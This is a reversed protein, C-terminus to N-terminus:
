PSRRQRYAPVYGRQYQDPPRGRTPRDPGQGRSYQRLSRDFDRHCQHGAARWGRLFYLRGPRHGACRRQCRLRRPLQLAPKSQRKGGCLPHDRHIAPLALDAAPTLSLTIRNTQGPGLSPLNTGSASALWPAQPLLMQIPGSAVGGSNVLDFTAFTEEGRLMTDVLSNPNATLVATQPAITVTLPYYAVAGQASTLHLRAQIHVPSSVNAALLTYSLPIAGNAPISSGLSLQATLYSSAGEVVANVGSLPLDGLNQVMVQNTVETNPYLSQVLGGNAFRAGYLAFGSQFTDTAVSPHDACLEYSGAETGLPVFVYSFNGNPDTTVNFVRRTGKVLVRISVPVFPVAQGPNQVSYAYGHMPVPTGSPASAIDATVFARYDPQVDIYSASILNNNQYSIEALSQDPNVNVILYYQGPTPPLFLPVSNTYAQGVAVSNTMHVRGVYHPNAGSPSTSYYIYDTWSNTAAWIGDNEVSYSLNTIASALAASPVTIGTVRLDPLNVDSVNIAAVGMAFGTASATITARRPGTPVGPNVGTVTFSASSQNAPITTSPPVTATGTDSSALTVVLNTTPTFNCRVTASSSGTESITGTSLSVSLALGNDDIVVLSDSVGTSPIATGLVADAFFASLHATVSNHALHDNVVNIPFTASAQGAPVTVKPPVTVLASDSKLVITSPLPLPSKYIVTGQSAPNAASETIFSDALSLALPPLDDDTVTIAGPVGAFGSAVPLVTVLADASPLANSVVAANFSASWAGAPITVAAPVTLRSNDSSVLSVTLPSNTATNRSVTGAIPQTYTEGVSGLSLGVTLTAINNDLVTLLNTAAPYGTATASIAVQRTGRVLSSPVANVPFTTASHGSPITVSAPVTASSSDSSNLLVVLSSSTDGGRTLTGVAAPNAANQVFSVPSIALTLTAAVAVPQAAVSTNNTKDLEFLTNGADAKVVLWKNGQGFMPLTVTQTNTVTQGAALGNIVTFTGLLQESALTLDDALFIQDTWTNTAPGNGLNSETWTVQIAQGGTASAPGSVNTVMLDPYPALSSSAAVSSSNNNEGTGGANYEFINNYYDATVTIQLNGTGATGEPLAFSFQRAPAQGAGIPSLAVNEAIASNLLTQGSTQNVVLVRDYFNASVSANGTNADNWVLGVRTGSHLQSNTVALGTVQLDPYAAQTSTFALTTSNNSYPNPSGNAEYQSQYANATIRVGMAGAGSPGNPLQVQLSRTRSDGPAINGSTSADYYAASSFVSQGTSNTVIVQDYWYSFTAGSGSNTDAWSVLVSGGSVLNGSVSLSTVQLDPAAFTTFSADDSITENGAQDRSHVRYHYTTQPTLNYLTVGHASVLQGQLGSSLGYASSLGYEVLSSAPESSNWTIFASLVAPSAAINSLTPPTADLMITYVNTQGAAVGLPDQAGSLLVQVLGDMGQTFTIPPPYFTDNKLVVSGWRGGAPVNAQVAGPTSNTLTVQPTTNTDMVRDFRFALQYNTTAPVPNAFNATVNTVAPTRGLSAYVAVYELNTPDTTSFVKTFTPNASVVTNTLVFKQFFYDLPGSVVVPPASFDVSQGNTYTGAGAVIALGPPETATTVVHNTNAETYNAVFTHNSYVVITLTPTPGLVVGNETWSGFNYGFNPQATLTNTSGYSYSGAGTVVGGGAPNNSVVITFLPLSFNAVLQRSRQAAFAYTASASQLIGNETWGAFYYPWVNTNATATLTVPAGPLFVGGGLVSGGDPPNASISIVYSQGSYPQLTFNAVQNANDVVVDQAPLDDYGRAALDQLGVRWVGNTVDLAYQGGSDTVTSLFVANDSNTTLASVTVGAVPLGNTDTVSGTIQATTGVNSIVQLSVANAAYAVRWGLGTGAAPLNLATFANSRTGCTIMPVTDGSKPSYGGLLGVTLTGDLALSGNVVVPAPHSAGTVGFSLSAGAQSYGNATSFNIRGSLVGLSGTNYFPMGVSTTGTGATKQVAGANEFHSSSPQGSYSGLTQDCQINWLGAPLNVVPGANNYYDYLYVTGGLWNVTGANTLSSYMYRTASGTINMMGSSGVTVPGNLNGAAWNFTGGELVLLTASAGAGCSLTGSVTYNGSLSSSALTLNTITGGQFNTGLSVTGGAMALGPVVDEPLTLTGGTFQIPGPGTLVASTTGNFSGYAFHIATGSAANFTGEITGGAQFSLIGSLAAFTGSNYFPLSLTTTGTGATKQVAGANEFHSSSPQGSYSGLTQDCQINWLGGPLNVVPGANNYYDYLYVTGGLWNVTGANTLSSYMYRTASGTLNMVGNTGVLVPGQATGGSWNVTAGGAAALTGSVTGGSWNVTAGGAVALSGSIGNGCNFLGSVTYNGGLTPGSLTLNTITGGQFNPGLGVTGGTMQLGPIVDDLLTLSGGAFQIAGPGTLVPLTSYSFSGGAFKLVAGSAASFAGEIMGGTGFSLTGSLGAVTGSNYFPLSLTTTGTGATKQVAGANEFHSSSPQGSYSGLTQDCQINWLGGPLNVVPGANNYYDYLYVTGGLWNVTGANTLSSYIYRTASGTLNMVGNTGVVVPGQATGGSWNVTAGGAAALTGSVTGGSWNVTAGGAVALSGSIGNGCNFLGSVTYNGGLTPGSLTLNTITGGQFNPGLGVTGGTMQLGPIVDDLLTLSGGAFQIAGPGTLVPLTSYSFSGGAFKLVAGSAASFAGEIMGGTGFSLTGSLGAVTGSNYFPLSLTTTGTGATKQVAGANEFHSSSPQGSYSGLTQDCQINWLGGPLNVVPGANNYYDYLYVTGGLWNVTGANTLSSYIYRTASGTINMVGNSAITLPIRITTGGSWNLAGSVTLGGSGGFTGGSLALVGNTNVASAHDLTLTSSALSLTQMGSNAGIQLSGAEANANVAVTYTGANTIVANDAAGPVENPSWNTAVNWDGGSTNTWSISAADSKFAALGLLATIAMCPLLSKFLAWGGAQRNTVPRLHGGNRAGIWYPGDYTPM